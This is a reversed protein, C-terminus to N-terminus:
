QGMPIPQTYLKKVKYQAPATATAPTTIEVEVLSKTLAESDVEFQNTTPNVRGSQAYAYVSFFNSCTTAGPFFPSLRLENSKISRPLNTYRTSSEFTTSNTSVLDAIDRIETVESPLVFQNTPFGKSKRVRSAATSNSGWVSLPSWTMNGINRALLQPWTTSNGLGVAVTANGLQDSSVMGPHDSIAFNGTLNYPNRLMPSNAVSVNDFSQLLSELGKSRSINTTGNATAFKNNINVHSAFNLPIITSNSGFSIVDLMAWDPILSQITKNGGGDISAVENAPQLQMRLTRWHYNTVVKGLDAPSIFVNIGNSDVLNIEAGTASRYSPWHAVGVGPQLYYPNAPNGGNLNYFYDVMQFGIAAYNARGAIPPDGSITNNKTWKSDSNLSKGSDPVNCAFHVFSGVNTRGYGRTTDGWTSNAFGAWGFTANSSFAPWPSSSPLSSVSRLRPDLKGYSKAPPNVPEPDAWTANITTSSNATFPFSFGTLNATSLTIPFDGIDRGGVVWDRITANDSWNALLRIKKINAKVNNISNITINDSANYSFGMSIEGGRTGGPKYGTANNRGLTGIHYRNFFGVYLCSFSVDNATLVRRNTQILSWYPPVADGERWDMPDNYGLNQTYTSNANTCFQTFPGSSGSVPWTGGLSATNATGNQTYNVDYTLSDLDVIFRATGNGNVRSGFVRWGVTEICVQLVNRMSITGGVKEVALRGSIGVENIGWWPAYGLYERPIGDSDLNDSGILPGYYGNGWGDVGGYSVYMNMTNRDKLQLMNAALQKLGITANAGSITYKDAYTQGYIDRLRPDSLANYITNVSATANTTDTALDNIFLRRAGWPTYKMHFDRPPLATLYPLDSSPSLNLTNNGNATAQEPRFYYGWSALSSNNSITGNITNLLNNLTSTNNSLTTLSLPRSDAVNLTSRNATVANINLKTLEDDVYYAIRGLIQSTGNVTTTVNEMYVEIKQSTNGTITWQNSTASSNSSPNQLNNMDIIAGSGNESFLNFSKNSTITGNQFVFQRIAGPQTTIVTTGTGNVTFGQQIKAMAQQTAMEALGSAANQRSFNRAAIQEVRSTSLFSVVITALLATILLTLILASGHDSQRTKSALFQKLFGSLERTLRPSRTGSHPAGPDKMSRAAKRHTKEDPNFQM